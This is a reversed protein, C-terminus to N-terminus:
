SPLESLYKLGFLYNPIKIAFGVNGGIFDQEQDSVSAIIKYGQAALTARICGKYTIYPITCQEESRIILREYGTFGVDKLNRETADFEDPQRETIFIITYGLKQFHKYLSLVHPVAPANAAVIWQHFLPQFFGFQVSKMEKYYYLATFDVDFIVAEQPSQANETFHRTAHEVTTRVEEIFCGSEYYQMVQRHALSINKPKDVCRCGSLFLIGVVVLPTSTQLTKKIRVVRDKTQEAKKAAYNSYTIIM